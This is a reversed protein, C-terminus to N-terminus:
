MYTLKRKQSFFQPFSVSITNHLFIDIAKRRFSALAPILPCHGFPPSLHWFGNFIEQLLDLDVGLGVRGGLGRGARRLLMIQGPKQRLLQFGHARLFDGVVFPM